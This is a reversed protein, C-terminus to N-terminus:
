KMVSIIRMEIRRNKAKGADTDNGAIPRTAGYGVAVIRDAKIGKSVLYSQVSKARNRSLELNHEDSGTNDTHGSIEIKMGPNEKMLDVVEGLENFSEPKLDFKDVDFFINELVVSVDSKIKKLYADVSYPVDLTSETPQFNASYFLYGNRYVNLSYNGGPVLTTFFFPVSDTYLVENNLLNVIRIQGWLSKRTEEDFIKGTVYSVPDPKRDGLLDFSYIDPGGYGGDRTSVFYAKSGKRDVYMGLDDSGTNIGRGMNVPKSWTGDGQKKSVFLDHEGFGPHGTSSFYLTKGDYHLYPAEDDDRTNIVAGLNEPETWKNDIIRSMWLDKGGYGGPRASAFILTRGDASISPQADWSPTNVVPGLNRRKSWANNEADYASYFVDCSGYGDQNCVTYFIFRGDPNISTTGENEPTNIRGPLPVAKGWGSDTLNSIYFDEQMDLMKTFILTKSNITMCPWYEYDKTNIGPGLNQINLSAMNKVDEIALKCSEKLKQADEVTRKRAADKKPDFGPKSTVNEFEEVAKEAEEYRELEFLYRAYSFYSMQYLPDAKIANRHAKLALATDKRSEHVMAELSYADAFKPDKKLAKKLYTLAKDKNGLNFQTFAKDFFKQAKPSKSQAQVNGFGFLWIATFIIWRMQRFRHWFHEM